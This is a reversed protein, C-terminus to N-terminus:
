EGKLIRAPNVKAAKLVQSMLVGASVIFGLFISILIIDSGFDVKIRYNDLWSTGLWIAAPISVFLSIVYLLMFDTSLIRILDFQGAGLVKRVGIEKSRQQSQFNILGFLGILAVFVAIVTFANLIRIFQQEKAYLMDLDDNVFSFEFPDTSHTKWLKELDSILHEYNTTSAKVIINDPSVRFGSPSIIYAIPNIGEHLSTIHYDQVVGSVTRTKGGVSIQEGVIEEWGTLKMATENLAITQGSDISYEVEPAKGETFELGLVDFYDGDIGVIDIGIDEESDNGQWDMSWTNQMAGPVTEGTTTARQVGSLGLIDSKFVSINEQLKRDNVPINILHEKDFGLEYNKMFQYQRVVLISITILLVTISYQAIVLLKRTGSSNKGSNGQSTKTTHLRSMLFAPYIGALVAVLLVGIFAILLEYTQIVALSLRINLSYEVIEYSFLILLVSSMAAILCYFVSEALFQSIVNGQNAGIAKRLGVENSRTITRATSLNIYNFIAIILVMMGIAFFIEVNRIDGATKSGSIHQSKLYVEKLPQFVIQQNASEEGRNKVLVDKMSKNVQELYDPQVLAYTRLWSFGWYPIMEQYIDEANAISGLAKFQIHSKEPPDELVAAVTMLLELDGDYIKTPLLEGVPNVDGYLKESLSRTLVISNKNKLADTTGYIIPFSFMEFFSADTWFFDDILVPDADGVKVPDNGFSCVKLDPFESKLMSGYRSSLGASSRDSSSDHKLVRYLNDRNTHFQDYSSENKIFLAIYFCTTFGLILSFLIVFSFVKHQRSHRLSVLFYNGLMINYHKFTIRKFRYFRFSRIVQWVFKWEANSKGHKEENRFYLETLDGELEDLFEPECTWRLWTRMWKIKKSDM